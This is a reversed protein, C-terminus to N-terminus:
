HTKDIDEIATLLFLVIRRCDDRWNATSCVVRLPDLVHSVMAVLLHMEVVADDFLTTYKWQVTVM